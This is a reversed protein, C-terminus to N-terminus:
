QVIGLFSARESNLSFPRRVNGCIFFGLNRPISKWRQDKSPIYRLTMSEEIAPLFIPLIALRMPIMGRCKGTRACSCTRSLIYPLQLNCCSVSLARRTKNPSLGLKVAKSKIIARTRHVLVAPVGLASWPYSSSLQIFHARSNNPFTPAWPSRRSAKFKKWTAKLLQCNNM